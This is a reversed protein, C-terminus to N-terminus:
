RNPHQVAFSAEAVSRVSHYSPAVVGTSFFPAFGNRLPTGLWTVITNLSM